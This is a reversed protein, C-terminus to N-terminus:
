FVYSLIMAVVVIASSLTALLTDDDSPSGAGGLRWIIWIAVVVLHCLLRARARWPADGPEDGRRFPDSLFM